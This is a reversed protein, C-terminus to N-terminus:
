ETLLRATEYLAKTEAIYVSRAIEGNRFLERLALMQQEIDALQSAVDDQGAAHKNKRKKSRKFLKFGGSAEIAEDAVPMASPTQPVTPATPAEDSISSEEVAMAAAPRLGRKHKRLRLLAVILLILFFSAGIGILLLGYQQLLDDTM